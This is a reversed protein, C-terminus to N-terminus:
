DMEGLYAEVVEKNGRIQQGSGEAINKGFALVAIRDCYDMIVKMNHEIIVITTGTERLKMLLEMIREVRDQSLTTVPEDLLLLKPRSVLAIGIALARKFGSSLEEALKDKHETLELFDLVEMVQQRATKDEKRAAPTDLLVKWWPAKYLRHFATLLCDYVTTKAFLTSLQFTRGIGIKAIDHPDMRTIDRGDFIVEGSAPELYGTVVNFLTSKGAGNPGIIGLIESENVDLDLHDLAALGGFNKSLGRVELLAM